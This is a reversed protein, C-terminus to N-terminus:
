KGEMNRRTEEKFLEGLQIFNNWWKSNIRHADMVYNRIEENSYAKQIYYSYNVDLMEYTILGNHYLDGLTEFTGLYREIEGSSFRGAPQLIKTSVNSTDLVQSISLYPDEDLYEGFRLVLEASSKVRYDSIQIMAFIVGSLVALNALIQLTDKLVELGKKSFIRM